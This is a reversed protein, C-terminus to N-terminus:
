AESVKGGLGEDKLLENFAEAHQKNDFQGVELRHVKKGEKVIETMKITMHKDFEKLKERQAQAKELNTFTGAQITYLTIFYPDPLDKADPLIEVKVNGVGKKHFGLKRAAVESVDIIRNGVFPGRDNIRVIVSESNDLNTVKVKTGFPLTQHAATM